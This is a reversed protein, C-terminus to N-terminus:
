CSMIRNKKDRETNREIKPKWYELGTKEHVDKISYRKFGMLTSLNCKIQMFCSHRGKTDFWVYSTELM